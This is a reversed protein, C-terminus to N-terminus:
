REVDATEHWTRAAVWRSFDLLGFAQEVTCEAREFETREGTEVNVIILTAIQDVPVDFADGAELWNPNRKKVQAFGHSADIVQYETQQCTAANPHRLTCFIRTPCPALIEDAAALNEPCIEAQAQAKLASAAQLNTRFTTM